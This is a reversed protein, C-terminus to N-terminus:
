ADFKGSTKREVLFRLNAAYFPRAFLWRAYRDPIRPAVSSLAADSEVDAIRDAEHQVARMYAIQERIDDMTGVPGHGPVVRDAEWAEAGELVEIWAEPDGDPLYPHSQVFVLDSAFVIRDDPLLLM